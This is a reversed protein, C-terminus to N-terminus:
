KRWTKIGTSSDSFALDKLKEEGMREKGNELAAKYENLSVLLDLFKLTEKLERHKKDATKPRMVLCESCPSAFMKM